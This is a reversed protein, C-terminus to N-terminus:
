MSGRKKSAQTRRAVVLAGFCSSIEFAYGGKGDQVLPVKGQNGIVRAEFGEAIEFRVRRMRNGRDFPDDAALVFLARSEDRVKPTMEGVILQLGDEARVGRFYGCNVEDKPAIETNKLDDAHGAFGVFHTNVNRYRMYYPSLAHIEANVKKLKDYQQTKRGLEDVVHNEWWGKTYCAWLITEGGFAMVTNAQYRMANESLWNKGSTTAQGVYWLARGTQRCVDAVIRFNEYYDGLLLSNYLYNDWCIYDLPMHECYEEVYQRYSVAGYSSQLRSKENPAGSMGYPLLCCYMFCEPMLKLMRGTVKGIHPYDVASCEDMFSIGTTAPHEWRNKRYTALCDDYGKLPAREAVKGAWDPGGLIFETFGCTFSGIGYKEFGDLAARERPLLGVVFDIGCDKVDQLHQPTRAYPQLYYTGVNFKARDFTVAQAASVAALSLVAVSALKLFVTRTTM